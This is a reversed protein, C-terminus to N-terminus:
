RCDACIGKVTIEVTRAMFQAPLSVPLDSSVNELCFFRGCEECQFHAHHHPAPAVSFRWVRDDGSLKHALHQENLWDLVRYVTVRDIAPQLAALVDLHSLPRQADLLAALVRVRAPTTRARTQAVLDRAKAITEASNSM